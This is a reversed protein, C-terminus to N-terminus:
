FMPKSERHRTAPVPHSRQVGGLSLRSRRQSRVPRQVCCPHLGHLLCVSGLGSIHLQLLCPSSCVRIMESEYRLCVFLCSFLTLFPRFPPSSSSLLHKIEDPNCYCLRSPRTVKSGSVRGRGVEAGGGLQASLLLFPRRGECDAKLPADLFFPFDASM